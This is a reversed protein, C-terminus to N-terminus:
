AARRGSKWVWFALGICVTGLCLVPALMSQTKVPPETDRTITGHREDRQSSNMIGKRWALVEGNDAAVIAAYDGVRAFYGLPMQWNAAYTRGRGSLEYSEIVAQYEPGYLAKTAQGFRKRLVDEVLARSVIQKSPEVYTNRDIRRLAIVAGDLNDVTVSCMNGNEGTSYGYPQDFFMVTIACRPAQGAIVVPMDSHQIVRARIPWGIRKLTQRAYEVVEQRSRLKPVGLMKVGVSQPGGSTRSVLDGNEYGFIEGTQDSASVDRHGNSCYWVYTAAGSHSGVQERGTYLTNLSSEDMAPDVLRFFQRARAEIDDNGIGQGLTSGSFLFTLLTFFSLLLYRM